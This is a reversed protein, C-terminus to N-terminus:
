HSHSSFVVSWDILDCILLRETRRQQARNQKGHLVALKKAIEQSIHQQHLHHRQLASGPLWQEIRFTSSSYYISPGLGKRSLIKAIEQEHSREFFSSTDGFVRLLARTIPQHHSNNNIHNNKQKSEEKLEICYLVNTLAGKM